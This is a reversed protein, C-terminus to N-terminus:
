KPYGKFAKVPSGKNTDTMEQSHIYSVRKKSKVGIKALAKNLVKEINPDYSTV